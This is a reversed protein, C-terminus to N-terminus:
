RVNNKKEKGCNECTNRSGSNTTGCKACTWPGLVTPMAASGGAKISAASSFYGGSNSSTHSSSETKRKEIQGIHSLISEQNSLIEGLAYLIICLVATSILGVLLVVISFQREVRYSSSLTTQNAAMIFSGIAGLIAFVGSMGKLLKSM